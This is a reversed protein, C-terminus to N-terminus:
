LYLRVGEIQSALVWSNRPVCLCKGRRNGAVSETWNIENRIRNGDEAVKVVEYKDRQTHEDRSAHDRLKDKVFTPFASLDRHRM